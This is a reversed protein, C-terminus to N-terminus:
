KQPAFTRMQKWFDFKVPIIKLFNDEKPKNDLFHYENVEVNHQRFLDRANNAFRMMKAYTPSDLEIPDIEALLHSSKEAITVPILTFDIKGNSKKQQTYVLLNGCSEIQTNWVIKKLTVSIMQGGDTNVASMGSVFNGLSYVILHKRSNISDTFIQSPQVVHPHSGIILDVGQEILFRALQEQSKNQNLKYEEGWHMVAIIVDPNARLAKQIDERILVTDIMNVICPAEPKISNTDYTYNLFAMKIGNKEIILPYNQERESSNKFTGTHYVGLSDLVDITRNIGKSYCDVAHNNATLFVSFGADKLAAAFEDPSSFQPYGKYPKGGLPTELNVIALDASTIENKVYKFYSSYDYEGNRLANVIQSKHQMADGAFLLRLEQANLFSPFYFLFLISAINFSRLHRLFRLYECFLSYKLLAYRQNYVIDNKVNIQTM